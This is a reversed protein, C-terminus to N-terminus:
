GAAAAPGAGPAPLAALTAELAAEVRPLLARAQELDGDRGAQEVAACAARLAEAGLYACGSKLAHATRHVAEGPGAAVAARLADLRPRADEVFIQLLEDVEEATEVGMAALHAGLDAPLLALGEPAPPLPRPAAPRPRRDPLHAQLARALQDPDVPKSLYDDMGAALCRERAGSLADATLALIPVRQGTGAELARIRATAEYGDVDPMMCDMLILSWGGEQFRRVAEAGDAAIECPLGLRRLIRAALLQNVPNDEAVLVRHAPAGPSGEALPAPSAAPAAAPAPLAPPPAASATSRRRLVAQLASARVPRAVVGSLLGAMLEAPLPPDGLRTLLVRQAGSAGPRRALARALDLGAEAGLHQDILIVGYPDEDMEAQAALSLAAAGTSAADLDVGWGVLLEAMAGLSAPDDDVVLVRLGALDDPPAAADDVAELRATFWFASGEGVTSAVGIDGGMLQAIERSIALGLGTGGYRRTTTPDAQTFPEFLTHLQAEPIGIGTDSVEFRLSCLDAGADVVSASLRVHGRATFKVANGVLNILVQRLRGPDGRVRAPLHPSFHAILDIGQSSAREAFLELVGSMLDRLDFRTQELELRGAEIKSFDLISNLLDLLHQGSGRVIEAYERQEEDLATDLLLGAMGIVANMPTRIEHSMNALFASKLRSTQEAEERARRLEAEGRKQAIIDRVVIVAGQVQGGHRIPNLVYSVPLCPGDRHAFHAAEVRVGEGDGLASRLLHSLEPGGCPDPHPCRVAPGLAQGRLEAASRGLLAAAAPNVTSVRGRLDVTILGDGMAATVAELTDHAHEARPAAVASSLRALAAAWDEAAPPAAPDLGAAALLPHLDPAPAPPTSM